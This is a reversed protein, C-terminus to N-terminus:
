RARNGLRPSIKLVKAHLKLVQTWGAVPCFSSIVWTARLVDIANLILLWIMLIPARITYFTKLLTSDNFSLVMKISQAKNGLRPLIKLAKAHLKLVHTWDPNYTRNGIKWCSIDFKLYKALKFIRQEHPVISAWM